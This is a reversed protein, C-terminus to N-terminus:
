FTDVRYIRIWIAKKLQLNKENATSNTAERSACAGAAGPRRPKMFYDNNDWHHLHDVNKDWKESPERRESYVNFRPAKVGRRPTWVSGDTHWLWRDSTIDCEGRSFNLLIFLASILLGSGPSPPTEGSPSGVVCRSGSRPPPPRETQTDYPDRSPKSVPSQSVEQCTNFPIFVPSHKNTDSDFSFGIVHSHHHM